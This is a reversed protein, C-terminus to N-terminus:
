SPFIRCYRGAGSMPHCCLRDRSGCRDQWHCSSGAPVTPLDGTCAPGPPVVTTATDTTPTVDTAPTGSTAPGPHDAEGIRIGRLPHIRRRQRSVAQSRCFSEAMPAGTPPCATGHCTNEGSQPLFPPRRRKRVRPAGREGRVRSFFPSLHSLTLCLGSMFSLSSSSPYVLFPRFLLWSKGRDMLGALFAIHLPLILLHLPPACPLSPNGVACSLIYMIFQLSVSFGRSFSGRLSLVGLSLFDKQRPALGASVGCAALETWLLRRGVSGSGRRSPKTCPAAFGRGAPDPVARTVEQRQRAHSFSRQLAAVRRQVHHCLGSGWGQPPAQPPCHPLTWHTEDEGRRQSGPFHGYAAPLGTQSPTGLASTASCAPGGCSRRPRPSSGTRRHHLATPPCGGVPLNEATAGLQAPPPSAAQPLPPVPSGIVNAVAALHTPHLGATHLVQYIGAVMHAPITPCKLLDGGEDEAISNRVRSVEQALQTEADKATQLAHQARVVAEEAQKLHDEAAARAKTAAKHRSLAQDLSQGAPRRQQIEKVTAALTLELQERLAAFGDEPVELIHKELKLKEQKLQSIPVHQMPRETGPQEGGVMPTDGADGATTGAPPAADGEFRQLLHAMWCARIWRLITPPFVSSKVHRQSGREAEQFHPRPGVWDRMAWWLLTEGAVAKLSHRARYSISTQWAPMSSILVAKARCGSGGAPGGPIAGGVEWTESGVAGGGVGGGRM